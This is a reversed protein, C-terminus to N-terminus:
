EGLSVTATYPHSSSAVHTADPFDPKPETPLYSTVAIDTASNRIAYFWAGCGAAHIWQERLFGKPNDRYFLYEGWEEETCDPQPRVVHAEGRCAFESLERDGCHPCTLHLM